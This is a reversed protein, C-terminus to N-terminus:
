PSHSKDLPLPWGGKFSARCVVTGVSSLSITGNCTNGDSALAYGPRCGCTYSGDTDMCIHACTSIGLACEDIDSVSCLSSVYQNTVFLNAYQQM